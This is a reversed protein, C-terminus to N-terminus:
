TTLDSGYIRGSLQTHGSSTEIFVQICLNRGARHPFDDCGLMLHIRDPYWGAALAFLIRDIILYGAASRFLLFPAGLYFIFVLPKNSFSAANDVLTAVKVGLCQIHDNGKWAKNVSM